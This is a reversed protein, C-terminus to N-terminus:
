PRVGHLLDQEDRQKRTSASALSLPKNAHQEQLCPEKRAYGFQWVDRADWVEKWVKAKEAANGSNSAYRACGFALWRTLPWLLLMKQGLTDMPYPWHRSILTALGSLLKITKDSRTTESAGGYHIIQAKPTMLPRAGIREARRCLDAEEGYMFFVPDFGGLATWVTTPMLFFCGSVIDVQRERDRQWDGYAERNFIESNPFLGTLGSVRCLLTWPTIHQWVSSPNLSGDAFVTRGGWILARKNQDAFTVLTDIARNQVVTDSNLLLVYRGKAREAALNNARAFGINEDLAIFHTVVPHDRLADASGDQSNNDVVIVEYTVDKTQSEISELAACTLEKTNYSVVLISVDIPRPESM